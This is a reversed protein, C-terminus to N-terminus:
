AFGRGHASAARLAIEAYGGLPQVVNPLGLPRQHVKPV